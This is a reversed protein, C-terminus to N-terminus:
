LIKSINLRDLFVVGDLHDIEHMICRAELGDYWEIMPHGSLTRYKVKVKQPREIDYFQNLTEYKTRTKSYNIYCIM